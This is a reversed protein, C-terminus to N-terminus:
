KLPAWNVGVRIPAGVELHWALDYTTKVVEELKESYKEPPEAHKEVDKM